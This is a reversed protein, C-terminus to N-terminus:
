AIFDDLTKKIADVTPTPITYKVGNVAEGTDYQEGVYGKEKLGAERNSMDTYMQKLGRSDEGYYAASKRLEVTTTSNEDLEGTPLYLDVLERRGASHLSIQDYKSACLYKSPDDRYALYEAYKSIEPYRAKTHDDYEKPKPIGYAM